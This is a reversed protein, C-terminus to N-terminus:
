RIVRARARRFHSAVANKSMGLAAGIQTWNDAPYAIRTKAIDAWVAPAGPPMHELILHAAPIDRAAAAAARDTNMTLLRAVKPSVGHAYLADALTQGSM